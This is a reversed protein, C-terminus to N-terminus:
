PNAIYQLIFMNSLLSTDKNNNTVKVPKVLCVIKSCLRGM